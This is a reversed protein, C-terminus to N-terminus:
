LSEGSATYFAFDWCTILGAIFYEDPKTNRGAGGSKVGVSYLSDAKYAYCPPNQGRASGMVACICISVFFIKEVRPMSGRLGASRFISETRIANEEAEDGRPRPVDASNRRLGSLRVPWSSDAKYAYCPPNVGTRVGDLQSM